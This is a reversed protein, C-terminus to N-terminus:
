SFNWLLLRVKKWLQLVFFNFEIEELKVGVFLESTTWYPSGLCEWGKPM